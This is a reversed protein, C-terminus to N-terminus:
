NWCGMVPSCIWRSALRGHAGSGEGKPVRLLDAMGKRSEWLERHFTMRDSHPEFKALPYWLGAVVWGKRLGERLEKCKFSCPRESSREGSERFSHLHTRKFMPWSSHITNTLTHLFSNQGDSTQQQTDAHHGRNRCNRLIAWRRRHTRRRRRLNARWRRRWWWRRRGYATVTGTMVAM